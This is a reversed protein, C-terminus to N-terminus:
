PHPVAALETARTGQLARRIRALDEPPLPGIRALSLRRGEFLLTTPVARIRLLDIFSAPELPRVARATPLKERVWAAAPEDAELGIAFVRDPALRALAAWAPATEECVPCTSKFVVVLSPEGDALGLSDGSALQRFRFPEGVTEGPDLRQREALAPLLRDHVLALGAMIVLSATAVDLVLRRSFRVAM